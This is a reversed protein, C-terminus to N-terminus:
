VESAVLLFPSAIQIGATLYEGFIRNFFQTVPESSICCVVVVYIVFLILKKIFKKHKEIFTVFKDM